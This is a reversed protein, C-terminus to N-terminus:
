PVYPVNEADAVEHAELSIVRGTDPDNDALGSTFDELVGAFSEDDKIKLDVVVSVRAWKSSSM